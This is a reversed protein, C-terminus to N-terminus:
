EYKPDTYWEKIESYWKQAREHAEYWSPLTNLNISPVKERAQYSVRYARPLIKWYTPEWSELTEWAETGTIPIAHGPLYCCHINVLEQMLQRDIGILECEFSRGEVFNNYDDWQFYRNWDARAITEWYAGGQSTLEYSAILKADLVAQIDPLTLVVNPTGEQDNRQTFVRAVINGSQFLRNAATAIETHSLGFKSAVDRLWQHATVASRLIFYEAKNM